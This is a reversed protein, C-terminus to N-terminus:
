RNAAPLAELMARAQAAQNGSPALSLYVKFAARAESFEGDRVHANALMYHALALSPDAKTAALFMPKSEDYKGANWLRTGEDYLAKAKAPDVPGPTEATGRAATSPAVSETKGGEVPKQEANVAVTSLFIFTLAGRLLITRM